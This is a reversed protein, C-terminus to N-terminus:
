SGTKFNRSDVINKKTIQTFITNFFDTFVEFFRHFALTERFTLIKKHCSSLLLSCVAVARLLLPHFPLGAQEKHPRTSFESWIKKAQEMARSIQHIRLSMNSQGVHGVEQSCQLIIPDAPSKLLELCKANNRKEPNAHASQILLFLIAM